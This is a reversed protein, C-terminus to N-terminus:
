ANRFEKLYDHYGDAKVLDHLEKGARIIQESYPHVYHWIGITRSVDIAKDFLNDLYTRKRM